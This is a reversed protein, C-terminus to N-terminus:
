AMCQTVSTNLAKIILPILSGEGAEFRYFFTRKATQNEISHGGRHRLDGLISGDGEDLVESAAFGGSIRSLRM